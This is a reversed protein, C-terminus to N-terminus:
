DVLFYWRKCGNSHTEMSQLFSFRLFSNSGAPRPIPVDKNKHNFTISRFRSTSRNSWSRTSIPFIRFYLDFGGRRVVDFYSTFPHKDALLNSTEQFPPLELDDMQLIKWSILWGNRLYGGNWGHTSIGLYTDIPIQYRTTEVERFFHFDTRIVIRLVYFFHVLVVLWINYLRYERYPM